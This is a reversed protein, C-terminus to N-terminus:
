HSTYLLWYVYQWTMSMHNKKPKKKPQQQQKVQIMGAMSM